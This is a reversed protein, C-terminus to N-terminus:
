TLDFVKSIYLGRSDKINSLTIQQIIHTAEENNYEANGFNLIGGFGGRRIIMQNEHYHPQVGTRKGKLKSMAQDHLNGQRLTFTYRNYMEPVDCFVARMLRLRRNVEEGGDAAIAELLKKTDQEVNFKIILDM